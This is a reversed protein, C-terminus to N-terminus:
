ACSQLAVARGLLAEGSSGAHADATVLRKNWLAAKKRPFTVCRAFRPRGHIFPRKRVYVNKKEGYTAGPPPRDSSYKASDVVTKGQFLQTVSCKTKMGSRSM